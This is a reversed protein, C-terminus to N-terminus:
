CLTDTELYGPTRLRWSIGEIAARLYRDPLYSVRMCRARYDALAISRFVSPAERDTAGVDDVDDVGFHTWQRCIRGCSFCPGRQGAERPIMRETIEM